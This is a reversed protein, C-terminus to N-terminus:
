PLRVWRGPPRACGAPGAGTGPAPAITRGDDGVMGNLVQQITGDGGGAVLYRGGARLAEGAIAAPAGPRETVHMAYPLTRERLAAELAPLEARVAGGGANPNAIVTLDGFRSAVPAETTTPDM